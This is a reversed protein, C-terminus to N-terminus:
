WLCRHVFVLQMRRKRRQLFRISAQKRDEPFNLIHYKIQKTLKLEVLIYIECSKFDNNWIKTLIVKTNKHGRVELTCALQKNHIKVEIISIRLLRTVTKTWYILLTSSWVCWSGLYLKADEWKASFRDAYSLSTWKGPAYSQRVGSLFKNENGDSFIHGIICLHFPFYLAIPKRRRKYGM